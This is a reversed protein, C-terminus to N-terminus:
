ANEPWFDAVTLDTRMTRYNLAAVIATKEEARPKLGNVILSMRSGNIGIDEAIRVQRLAHDANHEAIFNKLRGM